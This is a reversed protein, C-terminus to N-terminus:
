LQTDDSSVIDPAHHVSTSQLDPSFTVVISVPSTVPSAMSLMGRLKALHARAPYWLSEDCHASINNCGRLHGRTQSADSTAEDGPNQPLWPDPEVNRIFLDCGGLRGPRSHSCAMTSHNHHHIISGRSLLSLLSRSLCLPLLICPADSLPNGTTITITIISVWRIDSPPALGRLQASGTGIYSDRSVWSPRCVSVLFM